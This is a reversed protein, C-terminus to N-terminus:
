RVEGTGVKAQRAEDREIEMGSGSMLQQLQAFRPEGGPAVSVRLRPSWRGGPIAAGWRDVRDRLATALELTARNVDGAQIPISEYRQTGAGPAIVFRDPYVHVPLYRVIDNGASLAVRSPLAWNTGKRQVLSQSPPQGAPMSPQPPATGEARGQGTADTPQQAPDSQTMRTPRAASGGTGPRRQSDFSDPPDTGMAGAAARNSAGLAAAASRGTDNGEDLLGSGVTETSPESALKSPDSPGDWGGSDDIDSGSDNPRAGEPAGDATGPSSQATGASQFPDGSFGSGSDGSLAQASAEMNQELRRKAEATSITSGADRNVSSYGYRPLTRHDRFGSQRGQRDMQSVSLPPLPRDDAQQHTGGVHSPSGAVPSSGGPGGRGARAFSRAISFQTQRAVASRIAYDIRKRLEPDPAQYALEVDTPVLEYGFQDDWDTMAARAGYYSEVGDPRVILMPYPPVPDGYNQTAHYRVARLADDLPNAGRSSNELQRQTILIGEPWIKVGQATCELYIPRRSTGNPGQHPVIVVRPTQDQVNERLKEVVRKQEDLEEHLSRLQEVAVADIPQDSHAQEMADSIQRLQERIRRTHDEVHALQDRRQELDGTQADRFSVLEQLRFEEEEVLEAVEGATLQGAAHDSLEPIEDPAEAIRQAAENTNQAVLALLLILTGLTCVLVALFPFLTPSLSQRRRGSM